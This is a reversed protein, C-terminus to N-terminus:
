RHLRIVTDARPGPMAERPPVLTKLALDSLWSRYAKQVARISGGKGSLFKSLALYTAPPVAPLAEPGAGLREREDAIINALVTEFHKPGPAQVEIVDFRDLL